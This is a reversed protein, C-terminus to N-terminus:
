GFKQEQVCQPCGSMDPPRLMRDELNMWQYKARCRTCQVVGKLDGAVLPEVSYERMTYLRIKDTEEDDEVKDSPPEKDPSTVMHPNDEDHVIGHTQCLGRVLQLHGSIVGDWYPGMRGSEDNVSMLLIKLFTVLFETPCETVLRKVSNHLDEREMESRDRAARIQQRIEEPFPGMAGFFMGETM